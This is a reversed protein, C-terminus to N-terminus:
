KSPMKGLLFITFTGRALESGKENKIMVEIVAITKGVKIERSEAILHNANKGPRLFNMDANVTTVPHGYTKVTVGACTDALTFLCGGHVTGIPNLKDEDVDMEVIAHGKSLHTIYIGNQAAFRNEENSEKIIKAFDVKTM